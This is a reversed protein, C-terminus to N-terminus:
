ASHTYGYKVQDSKSCGHKKIFREKIDLHTAMKCDGAHMSHLDCDKSSLGLKKLVILTKETVSCYAVLKNIGWFRYGGPVYIRKKREFDEDRTQKDPYNQSPM